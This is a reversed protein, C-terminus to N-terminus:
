FSRSLGLTRMHFRFAGASAAFCPRGAGLSAQSLRGAIGVHLHSLRARLHESPSRLPMSREWCSPLNLHSARQAGVFCHRGPPSCAMWSRVQGCRTGRSRAVDGTTRVNWPRQAALGLPHLMEFCLRALPLGQQPMHAHRSRSSALGVFAPRFGAGAGGGACTNRVVAWRLM